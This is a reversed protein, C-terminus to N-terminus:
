IVTSSEIRNFGVIDVKASLFSFVTLVSACTTIESFAM